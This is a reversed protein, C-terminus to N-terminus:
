PSGFGYKALVAQGESGLVFAVFAAGGSPNRGNTVTAIPYRATVNFAAPIPIVAVQDATIAADTSYVIGADAEGLQVKALVARVNAENSRLNALVRESFDPAIGGSAASANALIERSYRGAPVDPAALVLRVGHRALDEFSAVRSGVKPVVVVLDNTAFIQDGTANGADMVVKMQPLDASAFVDAPAGENIQTALAASSAFNFRVDAGPHAAEFPGEMERFAETLSAAAFVIIEGRVPRDGAPPADGNGEDAGCAVLVAPAAIVLAALLALPWRRRRRTRPNM